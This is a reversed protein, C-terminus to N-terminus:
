LQLHGTDCTTPCSGFLSPWRGLIGDYGGGDNSDDYDSGDDNNDDHDTADEQYTHIVVILPQM